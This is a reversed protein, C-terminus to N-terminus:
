QLVCFWWWELRGYEFALSVCKWIEVPVDDVVILPVYGEFGLYVNEFRFCIKEKSLYTRSTEAKQCPVTLNGVM